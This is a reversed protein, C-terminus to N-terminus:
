VTTGDEREVEVTREGALRGQGRLLTVGVDELWSVQDSDDWNAALENRQALAEEVNIAGADVGPTHEVSHRVEGPRLLGKSPMCAWYSCEGGVLEREVIVTSLGHNATVAAANEGAPGAGLVIVDYEQNTMAGGPR